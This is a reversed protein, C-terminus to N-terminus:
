HYHGYLSVSVSVNSSLMNTKADIILSSILNTNPWIFFFDDQSLWIHATSNFPKTLERSFSNDVLKLRFRVTISEDNSFNGEVQIKLSITSISFTLYSPPTIEKCAGYNNNFGLPIQLGEIKFTSGIGYLWKKFPNHISSTMNGLFVLSQGFIPAECSEGLKIGYINVPFEAFSEFVTNQILTNLMSGDILIGTQNVGCPVGMWIRVNQILGENFDTQPEVHIAVSGERRLEFYCRKIETNAYSKTGNEQPRKFVIGRKVGIFYCDEVITCETWSRTNLLIIGIESNTFICKRISIMFSNEIAVSGNTITLGEISNHKSLEHNEGRIVFHNGKLNLHAGNSLIEINELNELLINSNVDYDGKKVFIKVYSRSIKKLAASFDEEVFNIQGTTGNKVKINGGEKYIIYDYDETYDINRFLLFQNLNWFISSIIIGIIFITAYVGIKKGNPHFKGTM